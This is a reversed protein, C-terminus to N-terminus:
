IEAGTYTSYKKGDFWFEPKQSICATYRTGLLYQNIQEISSIFLEDIKLDYPVCNYKVLLNFYYLSNKKNTAVELVKVQQWRTKLLESRKQENIEIDIGKKILNSLADYEQELRLSLALESKRVVEAKRIAERLLYVGEVPYFAGASQSLFVLLASLFATKQM